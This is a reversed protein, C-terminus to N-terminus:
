KEWRKFNEWEDRAQRATKSPLRRVPRHRGSVGVAEINEVERRDAILRAMRTMPDQVGAIRAEVDAKVRKTHDRKLRQWERVDAETAGAALAQKDLAWCILEGRANLVVVRSMDSPNYGVEVLHGVYPFLEPAWYNFLGALQIGGKGVRRSVYKLFDIYLDDESPLVPSWESELRMELRSVRRGDPRRRSLKRRNFEFFAYHGFLRALEDIMTLQDDPVAQPKKHPANGTRGLLRAFFAQDYIGFSREVKTKQQPSYAATRSLAIGRRRFAALIHHSRFDKGLDTLFERPEGCYARHPDLQAKLRAAMRFALAITESNAQKSFCFGLISGCYTDTVTTLWPRYRRGGEYDRAWLDCHWHDSTWLENPRSGKRSGPLALAVRNLHAREGGAAMVAEGRNFAERLIKKVVGYTLKVELGEDKAITASARQVRSICPREVGNNKRDLDACALIIEKAQGDDGRVKGKDSRARRGLAEYGGDRFLGKWRHITRDTEGAAAAQGAVTADKKFHVTGRILPAIAQFKREIEQAERENAAIAQDPRAEGAGGGNVGRDRGEDGMMWGACIPM